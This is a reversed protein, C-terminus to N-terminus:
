ARMAKEIEDHHEAVFREREAGTLTLATQGCLTTVRSKAAAKDEPAANQLALMANRIEAASAM